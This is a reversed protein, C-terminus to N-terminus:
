GTDHLDYPKTEQEFDEIKKAINEVLRLGPKGGPKIYNRQELWSVFHNEKKTSWGKVEKLRHLTLDLNVASM